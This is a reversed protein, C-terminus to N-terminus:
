IHTRRTQLEIMDEYTGMGRDIVRLVETVTGNELVILDHPQIQDIYNPAICIIYEVDKTIGIEFWTERLGSADYVTARVKFFDAEEFTYTPNGTVEDVVTTRPRIEVRQGWRRAVANFVRDVSM